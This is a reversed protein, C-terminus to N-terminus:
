QVATESEAIPPGIRYSFFFADSVDDIKRNWDSGYLRAAAAESPVWRLLGGRAVAYVKPDSQIKVMRVGPKYNINGGIKIEAMVADTITKVASFNRYWTYFVRENVFVYRKGDKGCFYVSPGSAKILDGSNCLPPKEPPKLDKDVNITPTDDAVKAPDYSGSSGSGIVPAAAELATTDTTAPM